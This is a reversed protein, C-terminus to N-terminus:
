AQGNVSLWALRKKDIDYYLQFYCPGGDDGGNRDPRWDPRGPLSRDTQLRREAGGLGIRGRRGQDRGTTAPRRPRAMPRTAITPSAPACRRTTGAQEANNLGTQKDLRALHGALYRGAGRGRRAGGAPSWSPGLGTSPPRPCARRAPTIRGDLAQAPGAILAAILLALATPRMSRRRAPWPRIAGDFGHQFYLTARGAADLVAPRGRGGPHTRCRAPKPSLGPRARARGGLFRPRSAAEDPSM